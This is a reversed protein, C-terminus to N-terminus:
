RKRKVSNIIKCNTEKELNRQQIPSLSTNVFILNNKLISRKEKLLSVYGSNLYTKSDIRQLGVSQSFVCNINISRVLNIAEKLYYDKDYRSIKLYPQIVFADRDNM